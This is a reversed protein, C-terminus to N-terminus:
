LKSKLEDSFKTAAELLADSKVQEVLPLSSEPSQKDCEKYKDDSDFNDSILVEGNDARLVKVSLQAYVKRDICQLTEKFYFSKKSYRHDNTKVNVQNVITIIDANLLKGLVNTENETLGSLTFKQEELISNIHNRTVVKINTEKKFQNIASSMLSNDLLRGEIMNLVKTEIRKSNSLVAIKIENKKLTTSIPPKKNFCGVCVICCLLIAFKFKM